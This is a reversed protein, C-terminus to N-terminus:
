ETPCITPREWALDCTPPNLNTRASSKIAQRLL